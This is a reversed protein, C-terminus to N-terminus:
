IEKFLENAEYSWYDVIFVKEFKLRESEALLNFARQYNDVELLPHNNIIALWKPLGQQSIPIKLLKCHKTKINDRLIYDAQNGLNYEKPLDEPEIWVQYRQSNNGLEKQSQKINVSCVALKAQISRNISKIEVSFRQDYIYGFQSLASKFSEAIEKVLNKDFRSPMNMYITVLDDKQLLHKIKEHLARRLKEKLVGQQANILNNQEDNDDDKHNYYSVNFSDSNVVELVVKNSEYELLYDPATTNGNPEYIPESTINPYIKLIAKMAMEEEAKKIEEPTYKKNSIQDIANNM